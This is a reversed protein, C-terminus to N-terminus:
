PLGGGAPLPLIVTSMTWWTIRVRRSLLRPTIRRGSRRRCRRQTALARWRYWPHPHGSDNCQRALAAGARRRRM